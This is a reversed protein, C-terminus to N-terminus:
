AMLLICRYYIYSSSLFLIVSKIEDKKRRMVCMSFDNIETLLLMSTVAYVCGYVVIM